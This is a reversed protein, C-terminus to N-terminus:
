AVLPNPDHKPCYHRTGNTTIKLHWGPPKEVQAYASLPMLPSRVTCGPHDCAVLILASM